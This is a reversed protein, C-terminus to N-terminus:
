DLWIPIYIKVAGVNREHHALYRIWGYQFTFIYTSVRVRRRSDTDLGVMNSHLNALLQHLCQIYYTDLGVMNSHLDRFSLEYACAVFTDLGVM